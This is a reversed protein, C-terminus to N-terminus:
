SLPPLERAATGYNGLHWLALGAAPETFSTFARATRSDATAPAVLGATVHPSWAPGAHRDLFAAAYCAADPHIGPAGPPRIFSAPTGSTAFPTALACVRDHLDRLGATAEVLISIAQGGAFPAAALGTAVLPLDTARAPLRDRRLSAALDAVRNAAVFLQALTLHPVAHAGFAIADHGESVLAANLARAAAALRPGPLLLIDLAIAAPM